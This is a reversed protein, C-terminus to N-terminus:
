PGPVFPVLPHLWYETEIAAEEAEPAFYDLNQNRYYRYFMEEIQPSPFSLFGSSEAAAMAALYADLPTGVSIVIPYPFGALSTTASQVTEAGRVFKYVGLDERVRGGGYAQFLCRNILWEKLEDRAANAVDSNESSIEDLKDFPSGMEIRANPNQAKISAIRADLYEFARERWWTTFADIQEQSPTLVCSPQLNETVKELAIPRLKSAASSLLREDLVGDRLYKVIDKREDSSPKLEGYTYTKGDMVAIITSDAPDALASSSWVFCGFLVGLSVRLM